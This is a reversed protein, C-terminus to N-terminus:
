VIRTTEQPISRPPQAELTTSHGILDQPGGLVPNASRAHEFFRLRGGPNLVRRIEALAAPPGPVSCLGVSAVAADFPPDGGYAAVVRVPVAV